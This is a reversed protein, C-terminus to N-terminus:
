LEAKAQLGFYLVSKQYILFIPTGFTWSVKLNTVSCLINIKQKTHPSISWSVFPM